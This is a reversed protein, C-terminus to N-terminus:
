ERGRKEWQKIAEKYSKIEQEIKAKHKPNPTTQRALELQELALSPKSIEQYYVHQHLYVNTLYVLFARKFEPFYPDQVTTSAITDLAKRSINITEELYEKSTHKYYSKETRRAWWVLAQGYANMVRLMDIRIFLVPERAYEINWKKLFDSLLADSRKYLDHARNVDDWTKKPKLFTQAAKTTLEEAQKYTTQMDAGLEKKREMEEMLQWQEWLEAEDQAFASSFLLVYGLIPIVIKKSINICSM